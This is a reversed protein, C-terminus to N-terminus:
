QGLARWDVQALLDLGEEKGALVAASGRTALELYDEGDAPNSERGKYQKELAILKRLVAQGRMLGDIGGDDREFWAQRWLRERSLILERWGHGVHTLAHLQELSSGNVIHLFVDVGLRYLPDSSSQDQPTTDPM